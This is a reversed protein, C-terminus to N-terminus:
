LHSNSTLDPSMKSQLVTLNKKRLILKAYHSLRMHMFHAECAQLAQEGKEAKRWVKQRVTQTCKFVCLYPSNQLRSESLRADRWKIQRLLMRESFCLALKVM